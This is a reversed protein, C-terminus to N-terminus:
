TFQNCNHYKGDAYDGFDLTFSNPAAAWRRLQTLQWQQVVDKTEADVRVITQKTVGLLCDVLKNNTKNKEKVLFFTYGYTKLSRSLQVYRNKANIPNLGVLKNHDLFIKKEADKKKIYDKPLYEKM